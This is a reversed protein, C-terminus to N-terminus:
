NFVEEKQNNYKYLESVRNSLYTLIFNLSTISDDNAPIPYPILDPNCNSDVISICPIGLKLCEQIARYEKAQNTFIILDPLKKLKKIGNFLKRLKNLEKKKLSIEKKSLNTLHNESILKELEILRDIRKKITPWNTLMGGLWRHGIYSCSIRESNKIVINSTLKTTGVFLINGGERAKKEVLDGAKKLLKITKVLDIIHYGSSEELIYPAMKPNWENKKHGYQVGAKLYDIFVKNNM